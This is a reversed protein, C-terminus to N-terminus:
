RIVAKRVDYLKKTAEKLQFQLEVFIKRRVFHSAVIFLQFVFALVLFAKFGEKQETGVSGRENLLLNAFKRLIV